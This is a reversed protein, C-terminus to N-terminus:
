TPGAPTGLTFGFFRMRRIPPDQGSSSSGDLRLRLLRIFSKQATFVLGCERQALHLHAFCLFEFSPLSTPAFLFFCSDLSCIKSHISIKVRFNLQIHFVRSSPKAAIAAHARSPGAVYLDPGSMHLSLFAVVLILTSNTHGRSLIHFRITDNVTPIQLSISRFQHLHILLIRLSLSFLHLLVDPRLFDPSLSFGVTFPTGVLSEDLSLERVITAELVSRLVFLTAIPKFIGSAESGHCCFEVM